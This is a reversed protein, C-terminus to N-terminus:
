RIYYAVAEKYDGTVFAENGKEKERNAIFNKEKETMGKFCKNCVLLVINRLSLKFCKHFVVSVM